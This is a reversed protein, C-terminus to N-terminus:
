LRGGSIRLVRDAGAIVTEDHSSVFVAHGAYAHARLVAVVLAVRDRDQHGTPEDALLLAPRLVLARALATRQQEGGSTQSPYRDGLHGIQLATMLEDVDWAGDAGTDLTLPLAINERTTLEDLVTLSQPVFAIDRWRPEGQPLPARRLVQGSDVTDLGALISLLTTKGSGSPGALVTVEGAHVELSVGDLATTRRFRRSVNEVALLPETTAPETVARETM